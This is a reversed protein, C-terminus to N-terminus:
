QPVSACSKWSPFPSWHHRFLCLSLLVFQFSGLCLRQEYSSLAVTLEGPKDSRCLLWPWFGPQHPWRSLTISGPLPLINPACHVTVPCSTLPFDGYLDLCPWGPDHKRQKLKESGGGISLRGKPMEGPGRTLLIDWM